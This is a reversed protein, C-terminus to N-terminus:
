CMNMMMLCAPPHTFMEIKGKKSLEKKLTGNM